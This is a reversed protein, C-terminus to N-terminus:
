PRVGHRAMIAHVAYRASLKVDQKRSSFHKEIHPIASLSGITSLTSICYTIDYHDTAGNLVAIIEAEAEPSDSNGSARIAAHRVLWKTDKLLPFVPSLDVERPKEIDALRDLLSSLVYKDKERGIAEILIRACDISRCRLGLKGITFYAKGRKHKDTEGAVYQALEDVMGRDLQQSEVGVHWFTFLTSRLYNDLRSWREFFGPLHKAPM